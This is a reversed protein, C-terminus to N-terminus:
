RPGNENGDAGGSFRSAYMLKFEQGSPAVSLKWGKEEGWKELARRDRKLRGSGVWAGAGAVTLLLGITTKTKGSRLRRDAEAQAEPSNCAASNGSITFCGQVDGASFKEHIGVITLATGALVSVIGVGLAAGQAAQGKTVAERWGEETAPRVSGVGPAMSPTGLSEGVTEPDEPEEGPASSAMIFPALILVLALPGMKM